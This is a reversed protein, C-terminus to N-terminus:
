SDTHDLDWMGFHARATEEIDPPHRVSPKQNTLEKRKHLNKHLTM